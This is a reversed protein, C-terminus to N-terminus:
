LYSQLTKFYLLQTVCYLARALKVWQSLSESSPCTYTRWWRKKCIANKFINHKRSLVLIQQYKNLSLCSLFATQSPTITSAETQETELFPGSSPFVKCIFSILCEKSNRWTVHRLNSSVIVDSSLMLYSIMLCPHPRDSIMFSAIGTSIAKYVTSPSPPEQVTLRTIFPPVHLAAILVLFRCKKFEM